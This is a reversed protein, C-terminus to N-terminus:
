CQKIISTVKFNNQKLKSKKNHYDEIIFIFNLKLCMYNNIYNYNLTM